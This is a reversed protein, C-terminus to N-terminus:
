SVNSWSADLQRAVAIVESIDIETYIKTADLSEHGAYRQAPQQGFQRSIYSVITHRMQNPTFREIAVGSREAKAFGYRLAQRYSDTSYRDGPAKRKRRNMQLRKERDVRRAECPFRKTKRPPRNLSQQELMWRLSEHPSFIYEAEGRGKLMPALVGQAVRPIAKVLTMGRWQNKHEAPTYLWIDGSRDLDCPRMRCAEGPRMGCLLQVQALASITPSVFPLLAYISEIAAPKIAETDRVNSEGRGISKVCVLRQYITPDCLEEECCWRFFKKIRTTTQNIYSRAYDDGVMWRQLSKFAKPGFEMALEEAALEQLVSLSAVMAGYQTSMKDGRRYHVRAFDDYALILERITPVDDVEFAPGALQISELRRLLQRYRRLSEESGHKGLYLRHSKNAISKHYVFAQGNPHRRYTPIPNTAKGM